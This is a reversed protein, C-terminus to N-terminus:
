EQHAKIEVRLRHVERLAVPGLDEDELTILWRYVNGPGESEGEVVVCAQLGNERICLSDGETCAREVSEM